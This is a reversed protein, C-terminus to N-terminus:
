FTQIETTIKDREIFISHFTTQIIIILTLLM